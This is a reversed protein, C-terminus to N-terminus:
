IWTITAEIIGPENEVRKIDSVSMTNCKYCSTYKSKKSAERSGCAPCILGVPLKEATQKNFDERTTQVYVDASTRYAVRTMIKTKSAANPMGAVQPAGAGPVPAPFGAGGPAEAGIGGEPAAPAAESTPPLAEEEDGKEEPPAVEVIFKYKLQAGCSNCNGEGNAIDVDKSGCQPCVSGWPSKTGPEPSDNINEGEAPTSGTFSSLGLDAPGGAMGAAENGLMDGGLAPTNMPAGAAPAAAGPLGLGQAVKIVNQLRSLRKAAKAGASMVAPQNLEELPMNHKPEEEKIIMPEPSAMMERDEDVYGMEPAPEEIKPYFTKTASSSVKGYVCGDESVNIETLAFTMPDVEYGSKSLLEVAFDRFKENFSADKVDVGIDDLTAVITTSHITEDTVKVESTKISKNLIKEAAEKYHCFLKTALTIKETSLNNSNAVDALWGIINEKVNKASATKVNRNNARAMANGPLRAKEIEESMKDTPMENVSDILESPEAGSDEGSLSLGTVAGKMSDNDIDDDESTLSNKMDDLKDIKEDTPKNKNLIDDLKAVAESFNDKIVTLASMIDGETIDPDTNDALDTIASEEMPNEEQDTESKTPLVPIDSDSIEPSTEIYSETDPTSPIPEIKEPQLDSQSLRQMFDDFERAPKGVRALKFIKPFDSTAAAKTLFEVVEQPSTNTSMCTRVISQLLQNMVLKGPVNSLKLNPLCFKELSEEGLSKKADSALKTVIQISGSKRQNNLLSEMTNSDDKEYRKENLKQQLNKGDFGEHHENVKTKLNVLEDLRENEIQSDLVVLTELSKDAEAKKITDSFDKLLEAAV